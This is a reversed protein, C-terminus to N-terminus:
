TRSDTYIKNLWGRSNRQLARTRLTARRRLTYRQLLSNDQFKRYGSLDLRQAIALESIKVTVTSSKVIGRNGLSCIVRCKGISSGSWRHHQSSGALRSDLVTLDVPSQPEETRAELCHWRWCERVPSRGEFHDDNWLSPSLVISQSRVITLLEVITRLGEGTGCIEIM